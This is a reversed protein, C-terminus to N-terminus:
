VNDKWVSGVLPVTKARTYSLLSGIIGISNFDCKKKLKATSKKRIFHFIRVLVEKVLRM